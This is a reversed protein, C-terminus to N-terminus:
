FLALVSQLLTLAAGTLSNASTVGTEIHGAVDGTDTGTATTASAPPPPPPQTVGTEIHGASVPVALTLALVCAAGFTRLNKM